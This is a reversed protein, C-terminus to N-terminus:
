IKSRWAYRRIGLGILVGPTALVCSSGAIAAMSIWLKQMLYGEYYGFKAWHPYLNVQMSLGSITALLISGLLVCLFCNLRDQLISIVPLIFLPIIALIFIGMGYVGIWIGGFWAIFLSLATLLGVVISEDRMKTEKQIM